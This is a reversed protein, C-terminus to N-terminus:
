SMSWLKSEKSLPEVAFVDLAAGRLHGEELVRILDDEVVTTGRGINIFTAGSKM